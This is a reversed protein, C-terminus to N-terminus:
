HKSALEKLRYLAESAQRPTMEDPNVADLAERLADPAASAM